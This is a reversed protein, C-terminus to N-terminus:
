IGFLSLVMIILNPTQKRKATSVSKTFIAILESAENLNKELQEKNNSRHTKSIIQLCSKTERLEKLCINMKHIFDKRSESAQAEGYNLAPSTGSRTIQNSLHIGAYSKNVSNTFLIISAAFEILRNELDFTRSKEM